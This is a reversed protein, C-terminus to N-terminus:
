KAAVKNKYAVVESIISLAIEQAGVAGIKLGIPGQIRQLEESSFGKQSLRDLRKQHTRRSGLAGIYAVESRLLIELANDDIKPDHSLVACFTSKDLEISDLVDSPYSSFIKDPEVKFTSNQSFFGRPDIVITEFDFMKAFLVLDITIHAIGILLLKPRRSIVQIFSERDEEDQIGTEMNLLRSGRIVETSGDLMSTRIGFHKNQTIAEGIKHWVKDESKVLQLLVSLKGGCSLGSSWAMDDSIGFEFKQVKPQGSRIMEMGEKVVDGEVCGGSVSGFMKGQSNIVLASGVPRPSSGWTQIVRAVVIPSSEQLWSNITSIEQRM